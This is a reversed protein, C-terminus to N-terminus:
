KRDETAGCIAEIAGHLLSDPVASKWESGGGLDTSNGMRDYALISLDKFQVLSCKAAIQSIFYGGADRTTRIWFIAGDGSRLISKADVWMVSKGDRGKGTEVWSAAAAPAPTACTALALAALISTKRM